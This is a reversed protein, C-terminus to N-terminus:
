NLQSLNSKLKQLKEDFTRLKEKEQKVVDEPARTLFQENSLKKGLSNIQGELREIEKGLRSKELDLDILGALPVFLEVSEVVAVAAAPVATEAPVNEINIVRALQQIYAAYDSLLGIKGTETTKFKVEAKRSPPVNMESRINRVAGILAQVFEMDAEAAPDILDEGAEPWSSIVLSEEQDSKLRNWIEESIFPIYPHLLSMCTKMVHVAVARATAKEAADADAALRPKILELYWDCFEHWFFHYVANLSDNVRFNDLGKEVGRIARQLRSL